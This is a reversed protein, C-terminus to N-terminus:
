DWAYERAPSKTETLGYPDLDISEIPKRATDKVGRAEAISGGGRGCFEGLEV